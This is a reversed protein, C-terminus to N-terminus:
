GVRSTSNHLTIVKRESVKFLRRDKHVSKTMDAAYFVRGSETISENLRLNRGEKREVGMECNARKSKTAGRRNRWVRGHRCVRGILSGGGARGRGGGIDSSEGAEVWAGNVGWDVPDISM